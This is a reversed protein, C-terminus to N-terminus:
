REYLVRYDAVVEDMTRPHPLARRWRDITAGPNRAVGALAGALARWDGPPVLAGNVGDAIMEALGGIATGVVPTGVAHAEIAVTPGGELSTSPCCLVDWGALLSPVAEPPVPPGFALREDGGALARLEALCARDDGTCAPGRLEVRLRLERPVARVARVLDRVGKIADFRGLYGIAIPARAPAVDPSSKRAIGAHSVGIRNLAVQDRPAGNDIAARRAWETLVVFTDVTELMRRQRDRNRAILDKMALATGIRGPLRRAARAIVPPMAGALRCLPTALGRQHLACAACKASRCVGDCLARGWRMMTGRQCIFGLSGTHATVIVRAGAERAARLEHLGLGTVLSHAHFVEPRRRALWDHFRSAGRAPVEGQAEDRTPAIPVPYRYVPIGEHEYSRDGAAGPEPAAIAVDCGAARLRQVLAAVYVETGGLSEPFYWGLAQVIKM